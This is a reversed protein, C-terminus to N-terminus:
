LKRKVIEQAALLSSTHRRSWHSCTIDLMQKKSCTIDAKQLHLQLHVVMPAHVGQLLLALAPKVFVRPVSGVLSSSCPSSFVLCVFSWFVILLLCCIFLCALSPVFLVALNLHTFGFCVFMYPVAILNCNLTFIRVLNDKWTEMSWSACYCHNQPSM